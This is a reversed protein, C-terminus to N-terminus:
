RSVWDSIATPLDGVGVKFIDPVKTVQGDPTRWVVDYLGDPLGAPVLAEMSGSGDYALIPINYSDLSLLNGTEYSLGRVHVFVTLDKTKDLQSKPEISEIAIPVPEYSTLWDLGNKMLLFMGEESLREMPFALFIARYAPTEVNIGVVGSPSESTRIAAQAYESSDTYILDACNELYSDFLLTDELGNGVPNGSVGYVRMEEIYRGDIRNHSSFPDWQFGRIHLAYQGFPCSEQQDSWDQGSLFLTGGRALYETLENNFRVRNNLETLFESSSLSNLSRGGMFWMVTEFNSLYQSDPYQGMVEMNWETYTYGAEEVALPYWREPDTTRDDDLLLVPGTPEPASVVRGWVPVKWAADTGTAQIVVDGDFDLSGGLAVPATFTLTVTAPKQVGSPITMESPFVSSSQMTGRSRFQLSLDLEIAQDSINRLEIPLTVTRSNRLMQRGVSLTPPSVLISTDVARDASVFGGGRKMPSLGNLPSPRDATIVLASKIQEPSWDPHAQKLLAATGSVRPCSFSTGSVFDFGSIQFRNGSPGGGPVDNQVAAYSYGGVSVVDPKVTYDLTPGLSSYNSLEYPTQPGETPPAAIIEIEVLNHTRIAEKIQLGVNHGIFYAPLHAGPTSPYAVPLNADGEPPNASNYILGGLGGAAQIRNLKSTFTCDYRVALVWKGEASGAPLDSCVAGDTAGGYGGGDILDADILPYRGVGYTAFYEADEGVTLEVYSLIRVGDAYIHMDVDLPNSPGSGSHANNVSGVAIVEPIQGPSGISEERGSNGAAAVVVVGCAIANRLAIAEPDLATEIYGEDGLSMNIIDMGDEVCAELAAIIQDTYAYEGTFIKYNGLYANPAVGSIQGLPSLTNLRGAACSACHTGHGDLDRPTSALAGDGTRPFSRAVLIKKSTFSLTGMPYGDPMVYGTDDFMPHTNDIGTDIVGIKIGAGAVSDGGNDVWAQECDMLSNSVNLLPRYQRVPVVAVVEPHSRIQEEFGKPIEMALGNILGTFQREVRIDESIEQVKKIFGAQQRQLASRHELVIRSPERKARFGKYASVAGKEVAVVSVPSGKLLVIVNRNEQGHESVRAISVGTYCLCSLLLFILSKRM